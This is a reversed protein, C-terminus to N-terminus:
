KKVIELIKASLEVRREQLTAFLGNTAIFVTGFSCVKQFEQSNMYLKNLVVIALIGLFTFCGYLIAVVCGNILFKKYIQEISKKQEETLEKKDIM